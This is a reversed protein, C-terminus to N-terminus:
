RHGLGLPIGVLAALAFAGYVRSMSKIWHTPLTESFADDYIGGFAFDWLMLGVEKPSPVLMTGTARVALDWALLLLVPLIAPVLWNTMWVKAASPPAPLVIAPVAAVTPPTSAASGPVAASSSLPLSSM